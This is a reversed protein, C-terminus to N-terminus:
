LVNFPLCHLHDVFTYRFSIIEMQEGNRINNWEFNVLEWQKNHPTHNCGRFDWIKSSKNM